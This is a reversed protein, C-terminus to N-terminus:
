EEFNITSTKFNKYDFTEKQESILLNGTKNLLDQLETFTIKWVSDEVVLKWDKNTIDDREPNIYIIRFGNNIAMNENVPNLESAKQILVTPKDLIVVSNKFKKVQDLNNWVLDPNWLIIDDNKIHEIEIDLIHQKNFFCLQYSYKYQINSKVWNIISKQRNLQISNLM